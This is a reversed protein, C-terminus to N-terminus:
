DIRIDRQNFIYTTLLMILISAGFFFILCFITVANLVIGEFFFLKDFFFYVRLTYSNFSFLGLEFGELFPEIMMYFFPIIFSIAINHTLASVLFVLSSYLILGMFTLLFGIIYIQLSVLLGTVSFVMILFAAFYFLMLLFITIILSVLKITLIKYRSETAYIIMASRNSFEGSVVDAAIIISILSFMGINSGIFDRWFTLEDLDRQNDITIYEFGILRNLIQFLGIFLLIICVVFKVSIINKKLYFLFLNKEYFHSSRNKSEQKM